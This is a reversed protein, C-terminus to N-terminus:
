ASEGKKLFIHQNTKYTKVRSVVCGTEELTYPDFDIAEEVVLLADEDILSSTHLFRLAEAALGAGYPPDLFVIDFAAQGHMTRLATLYDACKVQSKEKMKTFSVNDEVCAVAKRSNDVFLCFEAGRSLAELGLAGSGAFLDLVRAGPVSLQIINFLTEKIRDTTPRTDTGPVTKLPMSRAPGAIIRM